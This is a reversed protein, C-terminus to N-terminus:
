PGGLFHPLDRGGSLPHRANARRHIRAGGGHVPQQCDRRRAAGERGLSRAVAARHDARAALVRRRRGRERAVTAFIAHTWSGHFIAADVGTDSLLRAFARRAALVSFPRSARAAPLPAPTMGMGRLERWLRNAPSVAFEQALSHSPTAAFTALMREIGGYINGGAVHLARM